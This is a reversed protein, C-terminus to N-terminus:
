AAIQKFADTEVWSRVQRERNLLTSATHDQGTEKTGFEGSSHSSYFTAASYLAWVTRGHTLSEIHFQRLLKEVMRKSANPFSEYCEKADDDSITKGVWRKWHQAQTFFIDISRRVKDLLKPIQLGKTHKKVTMDYIGTVMGNECFFDIAGNYLKFSSSGDYGNIVVTRFAVDSSRSEINAKIGPFIYERISLGGHYSVKDRTTVGRLQDHGLAESFTQEISRCLTKNDLKNYNKGVVGLSLPKDNFMRVIHKHEDDKYYKDGTGKFYCPREWTDFYLESEQPFYDEPNLNSIPIVNNM